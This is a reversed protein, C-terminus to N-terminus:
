TEWALEWRGSPCKATKKTLDIKRADLLGKAAILGALARATYACRSFGAIFIIDGPVYNRFVFTYGPVIRVIGGLAKVIFNARRVGCRIRGAWKASSAGGNTQSRRGGAERVLSGAGTGDSDLEIGVYSPRPNSSVIAEPVSARLRYAWVFILRDIANFHPRRPARRRLVALQHRLVLFEVELRARSKFLSAAFGLVLSVADIM